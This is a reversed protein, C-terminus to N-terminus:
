CCGNRIEDTTLEKLRNVTTTEQAKKETWFQKLGDRWDGNATYQDYRWLSDFRSSLVHILDHDHDTCGSTKGIHKSEREANLMAETVGM